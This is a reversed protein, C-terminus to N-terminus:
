LRLVLHLVYKYQVGYDTLSKNDELQKSRYIIRQSQMPIGEIEEIRYKIIKITDDLWCYVNIQKGTLTKVVIYQDNGIGILAKGINETEKKIYTQLFATKYKSLHPFFSGLYWCIMPEIIENQSKFIKDLHQHMTEYVLKYDFRKEAYLLTWEKAIRDHEKRNTKYLKAINYLMADDTNPHQLLSTIAKLVKSLTLAPSWECGKHLIHLKIAGKENIGCHYIKTKFKIVPPSFPYDKHFQISLTFVGDQYPTNAPGEMLCEYVFLNCKSIPYVTCYPPPNSEIEKMEKTLRRLAM